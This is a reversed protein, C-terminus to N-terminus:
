CSIRPVSRGSTTRNVLKTAGSLSNFCATVGLGSSSYVPVPLARFYINSGVAEMYIDFYGSPTTWSTSTLKTYDRAPNVKCYAPYNRRCGAVALYQGLDRTNNPLISHESFYAQSAKLYSSILLLAERQRAKDNAGQFSPIAIAALIGIIAVVVILEVLTFGNQKIILKKSAMTLKILSM